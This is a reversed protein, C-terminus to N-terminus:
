RQRPRSTEGCKFELNPTEASHKLLSEVISTEIIARPNDQIGHGTGMIDVLRQPTAHTHQNASARGELHNALRTWSHEINNRALAHGFLDSLLDPSM